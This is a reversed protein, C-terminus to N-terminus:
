RNTKQMKWKIRNITYSNRIEKDKNGELWAPVIFLAVKESGRPKATVVAYDAHTASCFFKDGYLRWTDGEKVAEVLNAPVDSGGQIESLFGFRIHLM